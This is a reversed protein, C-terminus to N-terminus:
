EEKRRRHLLLWIRFQLRKWFSVNSRESPKRKRRPAGPEMKRDERMYPRDYIGM